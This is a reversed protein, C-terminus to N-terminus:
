FLNRLQGNEFGPSWIWCLNGLLIIFLEADYFNHIIKYKSIIFCCLLCAKKKKKKKPPLPLFEKQITM